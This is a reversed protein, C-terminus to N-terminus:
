KKVLEKLYINRVGRTFHKRGIFKFNDKLLNNVSYINDPHVTSAAYLYGNELCYEDEKLLMQYQLKNGVYKPNVMMPGYDVVVKYDLDIGFKELDKKSSPIIMMSCVPENDTYYIWIKAGIKILSNLDAKSFDGLWEPNLM